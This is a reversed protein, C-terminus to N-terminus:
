IPLVSKVARAYNYFELNQTNRRDARTNTDFFANRQASSMELQVGKGTRTKNAFNEPETGSILDEDPLIEASFGAAILANYVQERLTRDLGGVKTHKNVSDSYGHFSFLYDAQRIMRLANPEDFNTSTIHLDTNGSSKWGEFLFYSHDNGAMELTLESTGSEIGGAHPAIMMIGSPRIGYQIHYDILYTEAAALASFNAYKDSM